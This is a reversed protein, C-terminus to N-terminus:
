KFYSLFQKINIDFYSVWEHDHLQKTFIGYIIGKSLTHSDNEFNKSLGIFLTIYGM